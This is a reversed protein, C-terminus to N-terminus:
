RNEGSTRMGTKVKKLFADKEWKTQSGQLEVTSRTTAQCYMSGVAYPSSLLFLVTGVMLGSSKM